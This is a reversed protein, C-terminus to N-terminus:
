GKKRKALERANQERMYTAFDGDAVAAEVADKNVTGKGSVQHPPRPAQTVPKATPAPESKGNLSNEIKALERLQRVPNLLYNGKADRAFIHRHEDFNKAIAYMVDHSRESDLFFGDIPSGPKYFFADQGHEDKQDFASAMTEDYDAYTKKAAQARESVTREILRDVEARQQEERSKAQKAEWDAQIQERDWKRVDALYDALTAYKPKGQADVDEIKPEPRTTSDAAPQSKQEPERKAPELGEARGEWRAVKERLERNERSLKAWRSESTEPTKGKKEQTDAAASAAAIDAEPEEESTAPVEKPSPAPTEKEEKAGAPIHDEQSRQRAGPKFGEAPMEGTLRYNQDTPLLDSSHELESVAPADKTVAPTSM